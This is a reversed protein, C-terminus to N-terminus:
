IGNLQEHIIMPYLPSSKGICDTLRAIDAELNRSDVLGGVSTLSTRVPSLRKDNHDSDAKHLPAKRDPANASAEGGIAVGFVGRSTAGAGRLNSRRRQNKKSTEPPVVRKLDMSSSGARSISRSRRTAAKSQVASIERPLVHRVYRELVARVAPLVRQALNEAARNTEILRGLLADLSPLSVGDVQVACSTVWDTVSLSSIEFLFQRQM